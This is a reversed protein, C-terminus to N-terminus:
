AAKWTDTEWRREVWRAALYMIAAFIFGCLMGLDGTGTRAIPGTWWQQQMFLVIIGITAVFTFVAAYGRSLNPHEPRNWAELVQYTSWKSKRFVFHEVFVIACFPATWYGIFALINDFTSYFRASGIIAVPIVIATPIMALLFRPVRASVPLATMLSTCMSYVTPATQSPATLSLLVLLFKGFGGAPLLTAAILGGINNGNGLGTRWAPVYPATATLAAGLLHVPLCSILFGAYAYAFIRWGSAKGNHYVGYDPTIASWSVNTAALTAGFTMIASAEAAVPGSLPVHRIHSGSVALLVVFAIVNPIWVIMEYWHLVQYGSFVVALTVLAIIVIGLPAGVHPSISGLTQGGIITNIILYGQLSIINLVCPIIAGYYGWSFRAQVMARM